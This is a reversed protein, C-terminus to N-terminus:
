LNRLYDMILFRIMSSRDTFGLKPYLEDLKEIIDPQLNLSITQMTNDSKPRGRVPIDIDVIMREGQWDNDLRCEKKVVNNDTLFVGSPEDFRLESWETFKGMAESASRTSHRQTTQENQKIFVKYMQRGKNVVFIM